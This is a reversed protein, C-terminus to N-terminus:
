NLSNSGALKLVDTNAFVVNSGNAFIGLTYYSNTLTTHATLAYEDNVFAEIFQGDLIIKLDFSTTSANEIEIWSFDDLSGVNNSVALYLKGNNRYLYAYYAKGSQTITFGASQANLPMDIHARLINRNYQGELEAKGNGNSTFVDEVVSMNSVKVNSQSLKSVRGLSLENTLYSDCRAGLLGDSKQYVERAINLHGGWVNQNSRYAIWGYMYYMDGVQCIQAAHLDGGDLYHETLSNWNIQEIATNEAGVRYAMKGVNGESGTGYISYFIYWRNGIKRVQPCEPDGRGTCDLAKIATKSYVGNEDAKYIALGKNGKDHMDTYYNIVICYYSKTDKDYFIDPDRGSKVDNDFYARYRFALMEKEDLYMEAGNSWTLLDTSKSAGAYNGRGYCSRFMGDKDKYVGLAYYQHTEPPNTNDMQMKTPQYNIMNGSTALLSTFQEVKIDQEMGTSLYYMYMKKNVEDYFPHVDGFYGDATYHLSEESNMVFDVIPNWLVTANGSV